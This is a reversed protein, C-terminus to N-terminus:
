RGVPRLVRCASPHVRVEVLDTPELLKLPNGDAILVAGDSLGTLCVTEGPSLGVYASRLPEMAAHTAQDPDVYVLPFSSVMCAAPVGAVSSLGLGGLLAQGLVDGVRTFGVVVCGVEQGSATPVERGEETVKYVRAGPSRLPCPRAPVREGRMFPEAALNVFRGDVTGCITDGVVVDNFALTHAQDTLTAELAAVHGEALAGSLHEVATHDVSVLAGANTSGTGVGVLPVDLGAGHLATAADSLTGDGGVVVLADVGRRATAVALEQTAARGTLSRLREVTVTRRSSGRAHGTCAAEGLEGPGTFVEVPGLADIAAAATALARQAGAGAAPNVVLGVSRPKM